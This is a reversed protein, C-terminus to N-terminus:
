PHVCLLETKKSNNRVGNVFLTRVATNTDADYYQMCYLISTSYVVTYYWTGHLMCCTKSPRAFSSSYLLCEVHAGNSSQEANQFPGRRYAYWQRTRNIAPLWSRELSM